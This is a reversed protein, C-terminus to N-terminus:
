PVSNAKAQLAPAQERKEPRFSAEATGTTRPPRRGTQTLYVALLAALIAALAFKAAAPFASPSVFGEILGAIVLIPVIGLILRSAQGGYYTLSDRRPLHGPFLLGRAVLLGAGGAIFISPLELVGHPAVFEWLDRGMGAQWCAASIIGIMLGNTALMYITGLGATIGMAFTAFSVALNNTMIASAALPKITVISHTWMKHHEITDTMEPGLFFRQFAPDGVCALFGVLGGALFLATSIATYDFTSRFVQPFIRGYFPLVGRPSSRRGMYILNHARALLQNLYDALRRSMPDERVTALDAAVQRYFLALEQLEHHSLGAVGRRSSVDVISELRDWYPKRKELWRAPIM